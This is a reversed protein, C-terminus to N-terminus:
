RLIRRVAGGMIGLGGVMFLGPFWISYLAGRSDRRLVAVSPEGPDVYCVVVKGPAFKELRGEARDKQSTPGDVRKYRTGVYREGEFEYEYEVLFRFGVPSHPTPLFSEVEANVVVCPREVWGQTVRAREYGKWLAWVFLGGMAALGLGVIFLGVQGGVKKKVIDDM